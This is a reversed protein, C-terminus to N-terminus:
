DPEPQSGAQECHGDGQAPNGTNGDSGTQQGTWPSQSEWAGATHEEPLVLGWVTRCFPIMIRIKALLEASAWLPSAVCRGM